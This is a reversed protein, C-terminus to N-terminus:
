RQNDSLQDPTSLTNSPLVYYPYMEQSRTTAIDGSVALILLDGSTLAGPRCLIIIQRM